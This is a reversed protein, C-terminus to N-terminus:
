LISMFSSQISKFIKKVDMISGLTIYSILIFLPIGLYIDLLKYGAPDHGDTTTM